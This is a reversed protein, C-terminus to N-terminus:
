KEILLEESFKEQAYTEKIFFLLILPVVMICLLLSFVHDYNLMGDFHTQHHPVEQGFMDLFRGFLPLVIAIGLDDFMNLVGLATGAYQPKNIERVISFATVYAFFCFGLVFLLVEGIYIPFSFKIFIILILPSVVATVWMPPLRLKFYDSLWGWCPSGIMFGIFIYSIMRAANPESIGFKDILFPIGYLSTLILPFISNISVYFSILWLQRNHFISWGEKGFVYPKLETKKNSSPAEKIFFYVLLFIGLGVLGLFFISERWGVYVVLRALPAEGIVGGFMGVTILLSMMVTFRQKPFWNSILKLGGLYAFAAGMGMFLRSISAMFFYPAISFLLAGIACFLSAFSLMRHAGWRDLLIGVPIQMIMYTFFFASTLLGLRHESVSFQNILDAGIVNPSVQLIMQYFYFLAVLLFIIWGQIRNNKKSTKM